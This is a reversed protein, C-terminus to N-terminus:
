QIRKQTASGYAADWDVTLAIGVLMEGELAFGVEQMISVFAQYALDRFGNARCYERHLIRPNCRCARDAICHREMWGIVDQLVQRRTAADEARHRILRVVQDRLRKLETLLPEAEKTFQCRLRDGNLTLIGGAEEISSVLKEAPTV